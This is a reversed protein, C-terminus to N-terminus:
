PRAPQPARRRGLAYASGIGVLALVAILSHRMDEGLIAVLLAGNVALGILPPLPFLPMKYPRDLAPETRRLRLAALDVSMNILIQLVAGIAILTEYVGTAAFAMSLVVTALLAVRPTGSRAVAALPRPLVGNRAMAYAIRTSYMVSLNCIAAVSIIAFATIILGSRAGLISAVADAAPLTSAAIQGVSLVHLLGANVLLYLGTVVALGIFTSRAVNRGPAHVEECFYVCTNWGSYTNYIARMSIALATVTLVPPLRPAASAAAHPAAFCLAVIALLAIAKLASGANQAVGSTRTGLFNVFWTAAILLAAVAGTPAGPLIGLRHAYEGFVVAIFGVGVTVNLWDCWGTMTGALPGFARGVFAYPGGARPVSSGLEVSAFADIFSIVGGALWAALIWVPSPLAGAVIGPTRMIGQGVVGGVVVAIGFGVGLVRLLDGRGEAPLRDAQAEITM